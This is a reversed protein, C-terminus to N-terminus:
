VEMEEVAPADELGMEERVALCGELADLINAKVDELTEGQSVCGPIAPVKAWYGGEEAEYILVKMKVVDEKGSVRKPEFASAFVGFTNNIIVQRLRRSLTAAATQRTHQLYVRRRGRFGRGVDPWRSREAGFVGADRSCPTETQSPSAPM